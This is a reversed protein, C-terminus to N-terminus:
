LRINLVFIRLSQYQLGANSLKLNKETDINRFKSLFEFCYKASFMRKSLIAKVSLKRYCENGIREKEKCQKKLGTLHKSIQMKQM